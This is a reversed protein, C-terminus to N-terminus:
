WKDQKQQVWFLQDGNKAYCSNKYKSLKECLVSLKRNEMSFWMKELKGESVKWSKQQQEM